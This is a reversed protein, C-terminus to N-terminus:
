AKKKTTQESSSHLTDLTQKILKQGPANLERYKRIIEREEASYADGSPTATRVGFDDELGLLYDTTIEFYKAYQCLTEYPPTAIGNEYAWINKDTTHIAYSLEKQTLGKEHRLTKLKQQISTEM